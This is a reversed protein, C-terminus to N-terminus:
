EKQIVFLTLEDKLYSAKPGVVEIVESSCSLVTSMNVIDLFSYKEPCKMFSYLEDENLDPNYLLFKTGSIYPLLASNTSSSSTDEPSYPLPLFPILDKCLLKNKKILEKESSKIMFIENENNIKIEQINLTTIDLKETEM